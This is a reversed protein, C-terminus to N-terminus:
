VSRRQQEMRAANNWAPVRRISRITCSVAGGPCEADRYAQLAAAIAAVVAPPISEAPPEALLGEAMKSINKIRRKRLAFGAIFALAVMALVGYVAFTQTDSLQTSFILFLNRM